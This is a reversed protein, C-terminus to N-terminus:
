KCRPGKFRGEPSFHRLRRRTVLNQTVIFSDCWRRQWCKLYWLLRVLCAIRWARSLLSDRQCHNTSRTCKKLAPCFPQHMIPTSVSKLKTWAALLRTQTGKAPLSQGGPVVIVLDDNPVFALEAGLLGYLFRSGRPQFAEIAARAHARPVTVLPKITRTLRHDGLALLAGIPFDDIWVRPVLGIRGDTRVNDNCDKRPYEGFTSSTQIFHDERCVTSCTPTISVIHRCKTSNCHRLM